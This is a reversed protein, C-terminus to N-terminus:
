LPVKANQREDEGDPPTGGMAYAKMAAFLYRMGALGTSDWYEGSTPRVEVIALNPDEPGHPFWLRWTESWLEDVLARDRRLRATGSLSVHRRDDQFVVAVQPDSELERVHLSEVRIAFFVRGDDYEKAVTLPRGRLTGDVGRTVLMATDF